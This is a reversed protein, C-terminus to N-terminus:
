KNGTFSENGFVNKKEIRKKRNELRMMMMVMVMLDCAKSNNEVRFYIDIAM